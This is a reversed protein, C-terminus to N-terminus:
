MLGGMNAYMGLKENYEKDIKGFADDVAIKIMDQLAEVDDKDELKERNIEIKKLKKDGTFVVTVWESTGTYEKREIEEKKSTIDRQLKQAQAMLNQMNM